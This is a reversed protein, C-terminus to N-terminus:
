SLAPVTIGSTYGTVAAIPGSDTAGTGARDMSPEESHVVSGISVSITTFRCRGAPYTLSDADGQGSLWRVGPGLWDRGNSQTIM